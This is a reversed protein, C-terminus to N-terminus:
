KQLYALNVPNKLYTQILEELRKKVDVDKKFVFVASDEFYDGVEPFKLAINKSAIEVQPVQM